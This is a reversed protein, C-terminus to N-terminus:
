LPEQATQSLAQEAMESLSVCGAPALCAIVRAIDERTTTDEADAYAALLEQAARQARRLPGGAAVAATCRFGHSRGLAKLARALARDPDQPGRYELDLRVRYPVAQTSVHQNSM